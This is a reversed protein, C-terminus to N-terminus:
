RGGGSFLDLIPSEPNQLVRRSHTLGELRARAESLVEQDYDIGIFNAGWDMAARGTVCTGAFPDLVTPRSIKGGVHDCTREWVDEPTRVLPVGCDACVGGASVSAKVMPEVLDMPWPSVSKGLYAGLNVSWVTRKNRGKPHWAHDIEPRRAFGEGVSLQKNYSKLHKEDKSVHPERISDADFYYWSEKKTSDPHAFFFVTGHTRTLRDRASEPTTNDRQWIIENRLLWGEAQLALALRQPIMSLQKESYRDRVHFWLTGDPRLVRQLERFICVAHGIFEEVSSEGGFPSDGGPIKIEFGSNEYPSFRVEPWDSSLKNDGIGPTPLDTIVAHVSNDPIERLARLACEGWLLKAFPANDGPNTRVLVREL